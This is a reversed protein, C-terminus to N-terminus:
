HASTTKDFDLNQSKLITKIFIAFFFICLFCVFCVWYSVQIGYGKIASKSQVFDALKGQFPPILSGGLIMMILFTSGQSTYKGLGVISLGFICPWMISCFLGCGVISMVAVEGILSVALFTAIMGIIGFILLTRIPAHKGILFGIVQIAICILFPIWIHSINNQAIKNVGIVLLYAIFPVILMLINKIKRKFEFVDISSAWRGIMLGGWYFSIYASVESVSVGGFQPQKLFEALNSALAVEIGVYVFVGVMGLLIQPYQMAGWGEKNKRSAIYAFLLSAFVAILGVIMWKMRYFEVLTKDSLSNNHYSYIIATFISFLLLTLVILLWMAKNAPETKEILKGEPMSKSFIFIFAVLVFLGTVIIFLINIKLLSISKIMMDNMAIGGFLAFSIALPAITTGLSSLGGGLSIRNSATAPDGILAIFSHAASQQISFGLGVIFLGLLMVYFSHENVGVCMVISGIASLFLGYILSNKYGWLPIFDKGSVNSIIFIILSGFFYAFYFSLDVLQSEFQDLSFYSKCFPILVGNGAAIFGWFFFALVIFGLATYNTPKFTKNITTDMATNM